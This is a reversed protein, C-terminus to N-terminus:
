FLKCIQFWQQQCWIKIWDCNIAIFNRLFKIDFSINKLLNYILNIRWRKITTSITMFNGNRYRKSIEFKKQDCKIAIFNGNRYFWDLNLVQELQVLTSSFHM